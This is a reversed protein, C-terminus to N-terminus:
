FQIKEEYYKKKAYTSSIYKKLPCNPIICKDEYSKIYGELFIDTKRSKSNEKEIVLNEVTILHLLAEVSNETKDISKLLIKIEETNAFFISKGVIIIAGMLFMMIGGNFSLDLSSNLIKVVITVTSGWLFFSYLLVHLIQIYMQKITRTAIYNYYLFIAILVTIVILLYEDTVYIYLFSLITKGIILYFDNISSM